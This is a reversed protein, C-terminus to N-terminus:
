LAGLNDCCEGRCEDFDEGCNCCVKVGEAGEMCCECRGGSIPSDCCESLWDFDSM